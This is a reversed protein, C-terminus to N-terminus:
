LLLPVPGGAPRRRCAAPSVAAPSRCRSCLWRALPRQRSRQNQQRAAPASAAPVQPTAPQHRQRAARRAVGSRGDAPSSRRVSTMFKFAMMANANNKTLMLIYLDAHRLYMFTVSGLTRVPAVVADVGGEAKSSNLIQTRFNDAM